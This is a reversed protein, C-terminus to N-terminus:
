ASAAHVPLVELLQRMTFAERNREDLLMRFVVLNSYYLEKRGLLCQDSRPARPHWVLRPQHGAEAHLPLFLLPQQQVLAAAPASLTM